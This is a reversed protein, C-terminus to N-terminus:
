PCFSMVMLTVDKECLDSSLLIFIVKGEVADESRAGVLDVDIFLHAGGHYFRDNSTEVASYECVSLCASSFRPGHLYYKALFPVWGGRNIIGLASEEFLILDKELLLM